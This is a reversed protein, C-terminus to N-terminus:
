SQEEKHWYNRDNTRGHIVSLARRKEEPNGLPQWKADFVHREIGRPGPIAVVYRGVSLGTGYEVRVIGGDDALLVQKRDAYERRIEISAVDEARAIQKEPPLFFVKRKPQWLLREPDDVVLAAAATAAAGLAEIFGRRGIKM